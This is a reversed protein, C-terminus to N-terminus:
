PVCSPRFGKAWAVFCMCRYCMCGGMGMAEDLASCEMCMVRPMFTNTHACPQRAKERLVANRSDINEYRHVPQSLIGPLILEVHDAVTLRLPWCAHCGKQHQAAALVLQMPTTHECTGLPQLVWESGKTDLNLQIWRRRRRTPNSRRFTLYSAFNQCEGCRLVDTKWRACAAQSCPFSQSRFLQLVGTLTLKALAGALEQERIAEAQRYKVLGERRRAIADLAKRM